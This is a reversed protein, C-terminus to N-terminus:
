FLTHKISNYNNIFNDINICKALIRHKFTPGAISPCIVIQEDNGLIHSAISLSSYNMILIDAHIFDSMVQLVNTTKDYIITNEHNLHSVDGDSHIILKYDPKNNQFFKILEFLKDTQLPRTGVADNLRIHAAIVIETNNIYSPKPLYKNNEVFAKRLLPLSHVMDNMYEHYGTLRSGDGVGDFLYINNKYNNDRKIIDEFKAHHNSIFVNHYNNNIHSTNTIQSLNQLGIHIYNDLEEAKFNNHEYTNKKRFNYDYNAKGNLSISILRLIGEFQHGFGDTGYQAINLLESNM